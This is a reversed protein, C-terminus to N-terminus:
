VFDKAFVGARLEEALEIREESFFFFSTAVEAFWAFMLWFILGFFHGPIVGTM